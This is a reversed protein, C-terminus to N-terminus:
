RELKSGSHGRRTRPTTDSPLESTPLASPAPSSVSPHPRPHRPSRYGSGGAPPASWTILVPQSASASSDFTLTASGSPTGRSVTVTLTVSQGAALNGATSSLSVENPASNGVSWSVPGDMATLTIQGTTGTGVGVSDASVQLTGPSAPTGSKAPSAPQGAASRRTAPAQAPPLPQTAATILVQNRGGATSVLPPPTPLQARSLRAAAENGSSVPGPNASGLSAPGAQPVTGTPTAAAMEPTVERVAVPPRSSGALAFASTIVVASAVAGLGAVVLSTCRGRRSRPGAPRAGSRPQRIPPQPVNGGNSPPLPGCGGASPRAAPAPAPSPQTAPFPGSTQVVSRPAPVIPRPAPAPPVPRVRSPLPAVSPPPQVLAALPLDVPPPLAAASEPASSGPAPPEAPSPPTLFDLLEARAQPSLAPAPLLSFVRATSVNRPRAGTCAECGAAHDLVRDRLEPTMTGSWGALVEARDPCPHGRRALVEAGLARELNQRARALLAQAQGAPLGLVQGLDVEHRTDLELAEFEAPELSMAANWAVLRNDADNRGLCVPAEDADAAPVPRHRGCEARALSYLRAGAADASAALLTDRLAIQATERSRLMSWCYLFLRDAYTELLEAAAIQPYNM